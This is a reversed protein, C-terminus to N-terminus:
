IGTAIITISIFDKFSESFTAGWILNVEKHVLSEIIKMSESIEFATTNKPGSIHVLIGKAGYIDTDEMLSSKLASRMALNMREKGRGFGRGIVARGMGSMVTQVDAFDLNITGVGNVLDTVGKIANIM